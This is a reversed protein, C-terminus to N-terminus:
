GGKEPKQSFILASIAGDLRKREEAAMGSLVEASRPSCSKSISEMLECSLITACYEVPSLLRREEERGFFDGYRRDEELLAGYGPRCALWWHSIEHLVVKMVRRGGSAYLFYLPIFVEGEDTMYANGRSLPPYHIRLPKETVCSSLETLIRRVHEGRMVAVRRVWLIRDVCRLFTDSYAPEGVMIRAASGSNLGDPYGNPVSLDPIRIVLGM